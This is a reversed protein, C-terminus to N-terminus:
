RNSAGTYDIYSTLQGCKQWKIIKESLRGIEISHMEKGCHVFYGYGIDIGIHAPMWLLSGAVGKSLDDTKGTCRAFISASDAYCGTIASIFGSCDYGVKGFSYAFIDARERESYRKFYEPEANWLRNMVNWTLVEGKAGYFYAYQDAHELKSLAQKIVADWTQM